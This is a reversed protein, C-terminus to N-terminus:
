ILLIKRAFSFYERQVGGLSFFVQLDLSFRQPCSDLTNRSERIPRLGRKHWKRRCPATYSEALFVM